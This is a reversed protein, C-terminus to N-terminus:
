IIKEFCHAFIVSEKLRAFLRQFIEAKRIKVVNITTFELLVFM